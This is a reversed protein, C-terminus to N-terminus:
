RALVLLNKACPLTTRKTVLLILLSCGNKKFSCAGSQKWICAVIRLGGGLNGIGRGRGRRLGQYRGLMWAWCPQRWRIPRQMAPTRARCDWLRSWRYDGTPLRWDGSMANRTWSHATQSNGCISLSCRRHRLFRTHPCSSIVLNHHSLM